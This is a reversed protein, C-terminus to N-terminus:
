RNSSGIYIVRYLRFADVYKTLSHTKRSSRSLSEDRAAILCKDKYVGQLCPTIGVPDWTLYGLM